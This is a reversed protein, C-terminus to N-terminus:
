GRKSMKKSSIKRGLSMLYKQEPKLYSSIKFYNEAKPIDNVLYCIYALFYYPEARNKKITSAEAFFELALKLNDKNEPNESFEHIYYLGNNYVEEFKDDKSIESDNSLNKEQNKAENLINLFGESAFTKIKLNKSKEIIQNKIDNSISNDYNEEHDQKVSQLPKAEKKSATINQMFDNSKTPASKFLKGFM